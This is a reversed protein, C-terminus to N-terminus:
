MFKYSRPRRTEIHWCLFSADKSAFLKVNKQKEDLIIITATMRYNEVVLRSYRWIKIYVAYLCIYKDVKKYDQNNNM